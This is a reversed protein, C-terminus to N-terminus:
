RCGAPAVDHVRVRRRSVLRVVEVKGITGAAHYGGYKEGFGRPAEFFGAVGKTAVLMDLATLVTVNSELSHIICAIEIM